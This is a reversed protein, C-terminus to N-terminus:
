ARARARRRAHGIVRPLRTPERTLERPALHVPQPRPGVRDRDADARHQGVVRLEGNPMRRRRADRRRADHEVRRRPQRAGRLERPGGRLQRHDHHAPRGLRRVRGGQLVGPDRQQVGGRRESASTASRSRPTRDRSTSPPAASADARTCSASTSRRIIKRAGRTSPLPASFANPTWAATAHRRRGANAAGGCAVSRPRRSTPRRGESRLLALAIQINVPSISSTPTTSRTSRVSAPRSSRTADRYASSASPLSCRPSRRTGSRARARAVAPEGDRRDDRRELARRDAVHSTPRRTFRSRASRSPSRRPPCM